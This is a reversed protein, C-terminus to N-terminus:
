PKVDKGAGQKRDNGMSPEGSDGGWLVTRITRVFNLNTGTPRRWREIHKVLGVLDLVRCIGGPRVATVGSFGDSQILGLADGSQHCYDLTGFSKGM